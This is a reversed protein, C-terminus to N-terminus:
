KSLPKCGSGRKHKSLQAGRGAIMKGCLNCPRKPTKNREPFHIRFAAMLNLFEPDDSHCNNIHRLLKQKQGHKYQSSCLIKPCVVTKRGQRKTPLKPYINVGEEETDSDDSEDISDAAHASRVEDRQSQQSAQMSCINM